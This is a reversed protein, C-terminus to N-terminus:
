KWLSFVLWVGDYGKFKMFFWELDGQQLVTRKKEVLNSKWFQYYLWFSGWYGAMQKACLPLVILNLIPLAHYLRPAMSPTTAYDCMMQYTPHEM